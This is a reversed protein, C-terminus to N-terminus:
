MGIWQAEVMLPTNLPLRQLAPICLRDFARWKTPLKLPGFWCEMHFTGGGSKHMIRFVGTTPAVTVWVRYVGDGDESFLPELLYRQGLSAGFWGVAVLALQWDGDRVKGTTRRVKFTVQTM